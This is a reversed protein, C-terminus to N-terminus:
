QRVEVVGIGKDSNVISHAHEKYKKEVEEWVKAVGFEPRVIDHFAVVRGLCGYRLWDKTAGDYSHDGDIFVLDYPSWGYAWVLARESQSDAILFDADCGQERLDKITNALAVSIDAGSYKGAQDPLRGLDISRIFKVGFDAMFRLNQGHCSGIELVSRTNPYMSMLTRIESEDQQGFPRNLVEVNAQIM